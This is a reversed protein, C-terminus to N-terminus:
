PRAPPAILLGDLHNRVEDAVRCDDGNPPGPLFDLTLTNALSEGPELLVEESTTEIEAYGLGHNAYVTVRCGGDPYAGGAPEGSAREMILLGEKEAAIWGRPSTSGIKHERCGQLNLVDVLLCETLAAAPPPEFALVRYGPSAEAPLFVRSPNNVQSITWLTVPIESAKLRDIRQSLIVHPADRPLSLRRNIQIHLPAGLTASLLLSGDEERRATWRAQEFLPPPPWNKGNNFAPWRAQAVPWLWDGGFNLFDGTAEGAAARAVLATDLRFVDTGQYRVQAIRGIQPVVIVELAGHSLRFFPALGHFTEPAAHNEARALPAVALLFAILRHASM